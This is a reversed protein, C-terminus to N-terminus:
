YVFKYGIGRATQLYTPTDPNDEIKKRLRVIHMDLTRTNVDSNYGWYIYKIPKRKKELFKLKLSLIAKLIYWDIILLLVSILLLTILRDSM